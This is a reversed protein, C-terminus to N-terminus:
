VRAQWLETPQKVIQNRWLQVDLLTNTDPNWQARGFPQGLAIYDLTGAVGPM